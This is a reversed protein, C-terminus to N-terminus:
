NPRGAGPPAGDAPKPQASAKPADGAAPKEVVLEVRRNRARGDATRNSAISRTDAYGVAKLHAKDIGNAELYRVVSGARATSLEWNSPYRGNNRVPVSDTHGEVVIDYGDKSLVEAMRKLVALGHPSLDAQGTGFLIENNIRLSVSRQNIIVEVESGLEDLPLAAALSEGESHSDDAPPAPPASQAHPAPPPTQSTNQVSAPAATPPTKAEATPPTASEAAPSAVAAGHPAPTAAPETAAPAAAPAPESAPPATQIAPEPAPEPVPAPKPALDMPTPYASALAAVSAPPYGSQEFASDPAAPYPSAVDPAPIDTPLTDAPTPDPLASAAQPAPDKTSAPAAAVIPAPAAAGPQDHRALTGSFALMVIMAVLLLTMMDLYTLFWGEEQQLPAGAELGWRAASDPHAKLRRQAQRARQLEAELEHMRQAFERAPQLELPGSKM